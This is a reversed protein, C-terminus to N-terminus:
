WEPPQGLPPVDPITQTPITLSRREKEISQAGSIANDADRACGIVSSDAHTPEFEGEPSRCTAFGPQLREIRTFDHALPPYVLCLKKVIESQRHGVSFTEHEPCLHLFSTGTDDERSVRVQVANCQRLSQGTRDDCSRVVAGFRISPGVFDNLFM